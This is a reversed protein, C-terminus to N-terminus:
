NDKGSLGPSHIVNLVHGVKLFSSCLFAQDISPIDVHTHTAETDEPMDGGGDRKREGLDWNRQPFIHFVYANSAIAVFVNKIRTLVHFLSTTELDALGGWDPKFSSSDLYILNCNLDYWRLQSILNFNKDTM